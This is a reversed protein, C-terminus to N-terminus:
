MGMEEDTVGFQEFSFATVSFSALALNYKWRPAGMHRRAFNLAQNWFVHKQLAM